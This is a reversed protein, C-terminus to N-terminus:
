KKSKVEWESHKAKVGGFVALEFLKLYCDVHQFGITRLWDCQTEVPALINAAKDPRYYFENAVQERTKGLQQRDAYAMLSDIFLEDFQKEVWPTASSVHEINIFLGGPTLLDYIEQYIAKKREDPQHHISYGSVIIDFPQHSTLQNPWGPQGYDIALFHTNPNNALRTRAADLMPPSFDVFVATAAEFDYLLAQGLIGDGCGLDLIMKAEPCAARALRRMVEIQENAFPIAGRVGQLFTAALESGQWVTDQQNM